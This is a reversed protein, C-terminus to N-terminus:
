KRESVMQLLSDTFHYADDDEIDTHPSGQCGDGLDFSNSEGNLMSAKKLHAIKKAAPEFVTETM